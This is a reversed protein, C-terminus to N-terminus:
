ARERMLIFSRSAHWHGRRRAETRIDGTERVRSPDVSLSERPILRMEAFHRSTMIMKADHCRIM